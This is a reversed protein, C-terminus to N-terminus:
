AEVDSPRLSPAMSYSGLPFLLEGAGDVRLRRTIREGLYTVTVTKATRATVTFRFICAHDCISRTAYTKGIEFTTHTMDIPGGQGSGPPGMGM